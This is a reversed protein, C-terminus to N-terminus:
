PSLRLFARSKLPRQLHAAIFEELYGEVESLEGQSFSVQGFRGTTLSAL